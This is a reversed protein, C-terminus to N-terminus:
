RGSSRGCGKGLVSDGLSREHVLDFDRTYVTKIKARTLKIGHNNLKGNYNVM